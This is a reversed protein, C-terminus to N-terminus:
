VRRGRRRKYVGLVASDDSFQLLCSHVSNHQSDTTYLTFLFPCLITGQPVGTDSVVVDSLVSGQRVFILGAQWTTLLGPPTKRWWGSAHPSTIAPPPCRQWSRFLAFRLPTLFNRYVAQDFLRAKKLVAVLCSMKCLMPVKDQCLSLNYLHGLVPSM